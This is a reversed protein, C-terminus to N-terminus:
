AAAAPVLTALDAILTSCESLLTRPVRITQELGPRGVHSGLNNSVWALVAALQSEVEVLLLDLQGLEAALVSLSAWRGPNTASGALWATVRQAAAVADAGYRSDPPMSATIRLLSFAARAALAQRIEHQRLLEDLDPQSATDVGPCFGATSSVATRGSPPASM